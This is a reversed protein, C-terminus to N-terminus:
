ALVSFPFRRVHREQIPGFFQGDKEERFYKTEVADELAKLVPEPIIVPVERPISYGMGNVAVFVPQNGDSGEQNHMIVRVKKANRIEEAAGMLQNLILAEDPVEGDAAGFASNVDMMDDPEVRTKSM